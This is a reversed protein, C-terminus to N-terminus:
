ELDTLQDINICHVIGEDHDISEIYEDVAPVLLTISGYKIELISQAPNEIVDLVEGLEENRYQATYGIVSQEAEEDSESGSEALRNSDVFLAKNMTSEAETRNTIMDFKVFFTQQNRKSETYVSEIRTPIMDGRENKMYFLQVRDFLGDTFFQGPEFRVLGELGRPRGIHGIEVFRDNLM